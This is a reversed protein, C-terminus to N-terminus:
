LQNGWAAWGKRPKRAFLELYERHPYMTEIMGYVQEPKESHKGRRAHLVSPPRHAETPTRLDGCKGVLLLEHQGRFYYGLGIRDKVWVMNTRYDFGWAAMVELAEALKPNTAWLFLVADLAKPIKLAKIAELEMTPYFKQPDGRSSSDYEYKWPPDAYIVSYTGKVMPPQPKARGTGAVRKLEFPSLHDKEARALLRRQQVAPLAAVVAHHQFSLNDLRNSLEVRAAVSAYTRVTGYKLGLIAMVKKYRGQEYREKGYNAWDGTAIAVAKGVLTLKYGFAKWEEFSPTGVVRLGTRTVVFPQHDADIIALQKSVM